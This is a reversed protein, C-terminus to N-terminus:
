WVFAGRLDTEARASVILRFRVNPRHHPSQRRVLEVRRHSQRSLAGSRRRAVECAVRPRGTPGSQGGLYGLTGGSVATEGDSLSPQDRRQARREHTRYAGDTNRSPTCLVRFILVRDDVVQYFMKYPFRHLLVRRFDRYYLRPHEPASELERIASAVEDLFEAGLGAQKKEYWDRANALDREAELRVFVLWTM